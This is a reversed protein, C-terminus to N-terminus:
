IADFDGYAFHIGKPSGTELERLEEVKTYEIYFIPIKEGRTVFGNREFIAEYPHNKIFLCYILNISKNVFYNVADAVLAEAVDLRDPLTLLDVIYGIPYDKQLRNMRLVIYGLIKGNAKAIKVLYDGGRSDCYRWNLYDRSREVIFNYHDKIGEWFVNMREDFTTIEQIHFDYSSPNFFTFVNSLRNSFKVLRYGYKKMLAYKIPIKRLHLDVDHIRFSSMVIYPFRQSLKSLSKIRIPNQTVFYRLIAGAEQGMKTNLEVMKKSIAMKRFSPHVAVDGGHTSFFIGKGIKIRLLLSHDCGTILGNGVGVAIQNMRSFPNSQYKWRWHELPSCSLDFKPWGGFVLDLLRIIKEEDGPQYSRVGYDKELKYEM